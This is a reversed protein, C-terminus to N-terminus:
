IGLRRWALGRVGDCDEIAAHFQRFIVQARYRRDGDLVAYPMWDLLVRDNIPHIRFVDGLNADSEVTAGTVLGM